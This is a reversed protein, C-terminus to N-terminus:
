RPNARSAEARIPVLRVACELISLPNLAPAAEDTASSLRSAPARHIGSGLYDGSSAISGACRLPSPPAVGAAAPDGAGRRRPAGVTEDAMSAISGERRCGTSASPTFTSAAGGTASSSPWRKASVQPTSSATDSCASVVTIRESDPHRDIVFGSDPTVTYLCATSRIAGPRAGRLRGAIHVAHMAASEGPAVDRDLSDPDCPLGSQETAVKVATAGPLAPFGYFYDEPRRGHM